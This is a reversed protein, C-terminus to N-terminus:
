HSDSLNLKQQPLSKQERVIQIAAKCLPEISTGRLNVNQKIDNGDIWACIVRSRSDGNFRHWGNGYYAFVEGRKSVEVGALDEQAHTHANATLGFLGAFAAMYAAAFKLKFVKNM